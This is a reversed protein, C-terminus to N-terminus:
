QAGEKKMIGAMMKMMMFMMEKENINQAAFMNVQTPQEVKPQQAIQEQVQYTEPMKEPETNFVRNVVDQKREYSVHTYIQTAMINAHGLLAQIDRIDVNQNLLYTAYSHRLTHFHYKYKPKGAKDKYAVFNYGAKELAWTFYQAMQRTCVHDSAHRRSPFMYVEEPYLEFHAELIEKLQPPIPIIRDKKFKGKVVKLTMNKLNIDEKRLRCVEGVRMGCFFGLLCAVFYKSNGINNFIVELMDPELVDPVHLSM